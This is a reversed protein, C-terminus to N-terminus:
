RSPLSEGGCRAALAFAEVVPEQDVGPGVGVLQQDAARDAFWGLQGVVDSVAMGWGWQDFQDADGSRAPTHFLCELEGFIFGTQVVVLDAFVLGPVPM